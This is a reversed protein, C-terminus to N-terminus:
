LALKWRLSSRTSVMASRSPSPASSMRMPLSHPMPMRSSPQLPRVVRIVQDLPLQAPHHSTSPSSSSAMPTPSRVPSPFVSTIRWLGTVPSM